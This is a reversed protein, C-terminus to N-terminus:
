HDCVNEGTALTGDLYDSVLKEPPEAAAGLIVTIGSEAFLGQARSGMGGAIIANVGRGALWRPLLGPEHEPATIQERSIVRKESPDVDILAFSECHGFHVALRGDAIPIAIRMQNEKRQLLSKFGAAEPRGGPDLISQVIREFGKATESEQYALVFPKGNDCSEVVAPDIPIRGLFAVGMERAMREGGGAGFLESRSGCHPCAFGSMNEVVGIVPIALRRCFTISRRVAELAVEQPTTVVLAGDADGILQCVSLPEDGTGPPADVVLFDLEGWEVDKLFQKIVGMKMPGRWIVADDRNSLLFGISMIRLGNSEVPLMRGLNVGVSAGELGLIKPVSPGHIDVDLLGVKKGARTLSVALNVAVTSKGVGGKGSLVIIKHAIRGLRARIARREETEEARAERARAEEDIRQADKIQDDRM